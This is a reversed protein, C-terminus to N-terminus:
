MVSDGGGREKHPASTPVTMLSCVTCLLSTTRIVPHFSQIHKAKRINRRDTEGKLNRTKPHTQSRPPTKLRNKHSPRPILYNHHYNISLLPTPTTSQQHSITTTQGKDSLDELSLIKTPCFTEASIMKPM